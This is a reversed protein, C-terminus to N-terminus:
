ASRRRDRSIRFVQEGDRIALTRYGDWKVECLWKDGVPLHEVPFCKMPEFFRPSPTERVYQVVKALIRVRSGAADM